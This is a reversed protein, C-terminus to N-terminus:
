KTVRQMNTWIAAGRAAEYLADQRRRRDTARLADILDCLIEDQLRCSTRATRMEQVALRLWADTTQWTEQDSLKHPLLRQILNVSTRFDAIPDNHRLTLVSYFAEAWADPLPKPCKRPESQHLPVM